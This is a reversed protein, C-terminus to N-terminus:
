RSFGIKQVETIVKWPLKLKIIEPNGISVVDKEVHNVRHWPIMVPPHFFRFTKGGSTPIMVGERFHEALKRWGLMSIGYTMAVWILAFLLVSAFPTLEPDM